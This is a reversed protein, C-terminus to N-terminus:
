FCIENYSHLIFILGLITGILGGVYALLTDLKQYTRTYSTYTSSKEFHILAYTDALVPITSHQFLNTVKVGKEVLTETFPLISQDTQILYDEIEANAKFALTTTFPFFNKEELYYQQYEKSLTPNLQTNLLVVGLGFYGLKDQLAQM